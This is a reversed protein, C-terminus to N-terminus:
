SFSFINNRTYVNSGQSISTFKGVAYMTNGCQAIQRVVEETKGTRNLQPTGLAAHPSVGGSQTDHAAARATRAAPTAQAPAASYAIGAVLIVAAAAAGSSLTWRGVFPMARRGAPFCARAERAREHRSIAPVLRGQVLCIAEVRNMWRTM